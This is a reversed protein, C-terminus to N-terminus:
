PLMLFAALAKTGYEQIKMRANMVDSKIVCWYRRFIEKHDPLPESKVKLVEMWTRGELPKRSDRYYRTDYSKAIYSSFLLTETTDIDERKGSAMKEQSAYGLIRFGLVLPRYVLRGNSIWIFPIEYKKVVMIEASLERIIVDLRALDQAIIWINNGNHRNTAFFTHMDVDFNKYNRSSFDRYGEDIFIDSDHLTEYIYESKWERASFKRDPTIVPYNTFVKRGRQLSRVSKSTVFFSKGEGPKGTVVFVAM